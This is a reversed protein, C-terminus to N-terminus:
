RTSLMTLLRIDPEKAFIGDKVDFFRRLHPTDMHLDWAARDAFTEYFTFETPNDNNQHLHYEVCGPEARTPEIQSLLFAKAEEIKDPWATLHAVLTLQTTM